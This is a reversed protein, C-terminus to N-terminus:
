KLRRRMEATLNELAELMQLQEVRDAARNYARSIKNYGANFKPNVVIESPPPTPKGKNMEERMQSITVPKGNDATLAWALWQQQLEPQQSFRTVLRHHSPSLGQNRILLKVKRCLSAYVYLTEIEYGYEKALQKYTEGWQMNEGFILLDGLCWQAANGVSLMSRTLSQWQDFSTEPPLDVGVATLVIGNITLTGDAQPVIAGEPITEVHKPEIAEDEGYGAIEDTLGAISPKNFITTKRVEDRKNAM